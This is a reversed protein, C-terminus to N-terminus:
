MEAIIGADGDADKCVPIATVDLYQIMRVVKQAHACYSEACAGCYSEACACLLKRLVAIRFQKDKIM